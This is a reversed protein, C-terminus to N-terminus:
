LTIISKYTSPISTKVPGKCLKSGNTYCEVVLYTGPSITVYGSSSGPKYAMMSETSIDTIMRDSNLILQLSISCVNKVYIEVRSSKSYKGILFPKFSNIVSARLSEAVSGRYTRRLVSGSSTYDSTVCRRIKNTDKDFYLADSKITDTTGSLVNSDLYESTYSLNETCNVSITTSFTVRGQFEDQSPGRYGFYEVPVEGTNEISELAVVRDTLGSINTDQEADKANQTSKDVKGNIACFFVRGYLYPIPKHLSQSWPSCPQRRTRRPGSTSWM